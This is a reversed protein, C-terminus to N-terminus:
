RVHQLVQSASHELWEAAAAECDYLIACNRALNAAALRLTEARMAPTECLGYAELFPIGISRRREFVATATTISASNNERMIVVCEQLSARDCSTVTLEHTVDVWQLEGKPSFSARRVAVVSLHADAMPVATGLALDADPARLTRREPVGNIILTVEYDHNLPRAM